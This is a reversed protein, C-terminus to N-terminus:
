AGNVANGYLTTGVKYIHIHTKITTQLTPATGNNSVWTITPWTITYATGDDIMLLVSEGDALSDTLTTVNGTLTIEQVLGNAPDISATGTWNATETDVILGNQITPNDITPTNITPSTLTKSTLTQSDSTGVVVGAPAAKGAFTDINTNGFGTVGELTTVSLTSM